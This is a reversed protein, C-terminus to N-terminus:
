KWGIVLYNMGFNYNKFKTSSFGSKKIMGILEDKSFYFKHDKIEAPSAIKLKCALFELLSKSKPSPVTIILISHEKMVRYCEKVMDEPNKLHELVALMTVTDFRSDEFPLTKEIDYNTIRINKYLTDTASKDLGFGESIKSSAMKLFKFDSGCGIDLLSKNKQVYKLVQRVRTYRFFPELIEERKGLSSFRYKMIKYLALLGDRWDIKKGEEYRRPSYSIDVFKIDYGSRLIKATIEIEFDFRKSEFELNQVVERRMMKYCTEIDKLQHMYVFSAIRSLAYNGIVNRKYSKETKLSFPRKGYIVDRGESLMVDLLKKLDEPNYELDADHIVLITGTAAKFGRAVGAGKGMNQPNKLIRVNKDEDGISKMIKYSSDTSGDDVMIIETDIPFKVGKVREYSARLTKEENYVPIIISLNEKRNDAEM